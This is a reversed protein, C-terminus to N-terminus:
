IENEEMLKLKKRWYRSYVVGLPNHALVRDKAVLTTVPGFCNKNFIADHGVCLGCSIFLDCGADNLFQAQQKPNCMSETKSQPNIKKLQLKDKAIACNKCCISVVEFDKALFKKILHAEKNLGICFALGLKKYGMQRAFEATEELRTLQSYYTAEVFAAAQMIKHEEESYSNIIQKEDVKTCSIGKAACIHNKCDACNGIM